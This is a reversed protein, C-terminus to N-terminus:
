RKYIDLSKIFEVFDKEEIWRPKNIYAMPTAVSGRQKYLVISKRIQKSFDLFYEEKTKDQTPRLENQEM